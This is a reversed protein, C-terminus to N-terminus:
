IHQMALLTNLINQISYVAYQLTTYPIYHTMNKEHFVNQKTAIM